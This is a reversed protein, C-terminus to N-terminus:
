LSFNLPQCAADQQPGPQCRHCKNDGLVHLHAGDSSCGSAVYIDTHWAPALLRCHRRLGRSWPAALSWEQSWRGSRTPTQTSSQPRHQWWLGQPHRHAKSSITMNIHIIQQEVQSWVAIQLELLRRFARDPAMCSSHETSDSSIM